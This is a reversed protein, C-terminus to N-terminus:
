NSEKIMADAFGRDMVLVIARPSLGIALGLEEKTGEVLVPINVDSAWQKYKSVAGPSDEAILLLYGKEKKLFAEVQSEGSCIKGARRAIGLLSKVRPTM